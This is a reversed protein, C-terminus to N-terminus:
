KSSGKLEQRLLFRGRRTIKYTPEMSLMTLETEAYGQEVLADAAKRWRRGHVLGVSTSEGASRQGLSRLVYRQMPDQLQNPM